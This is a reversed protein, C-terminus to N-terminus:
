QTNKLTALVNATAMIRASVVPTPRRHQDAVPKYAVAGADTIKGRGGIHTGLASRLEDPPM